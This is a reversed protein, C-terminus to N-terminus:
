RYNRRATSEEYEFLKQTNFRKYKPNSNWENHIEELSNAEFVVLPKERLNKFNEKWYIMYCNYQNAYSLCIGWEKKM